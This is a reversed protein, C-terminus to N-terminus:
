SQWVANPTGIPNRLSVGGDVFYPSDANPDRLHQLPTYKVNDLRGALHPTRLIIRQETKAALKYCWKVQELAWTYVGGDTWFFDELGRLLSVDPQAHRYDLYERYTVPFNGQMTLPVFYISSAYEGAALNADNANNQEYIGTDVIVDYRNGNVTLYMGNRMNDRDIVNDRGDLVVSSNSGVAAGCRDTNYACPWIATLEYWLDPRMSIVWRVPDLGMTDANYRLYWELQALYRVINVDLTQYNYDKVDSDLSPCLTATDADMHGTAIQADLGPFQNAIATTGQWIQANLAREFRVGVGVMESMTVVDLIQGENLGSPPLNTMGLVRGRLVLDTFDGRNVRRMVDNMEITQTDYRLRGFRATLNCSKVYGTPADECSTDPQSGSDATYGTLAAFRPDENVSPILPLVSSIGQPRVHATVVDRELGPGAFIGSSGHLPTYTSFGAPTKTHQDKEKVLGELIATQRAFTEAMQALITDEMM